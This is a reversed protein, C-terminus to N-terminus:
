SANAESKSEEIKEISALKKYAEITEKAKKPTDGKSIVLYPLNHAQSKKYTRLIDQEETKKKNFAGLLYDKGEISVLAFLQKKDVSEIEKILIHKKSCFEQIENLFQEKDNLKKQKKPKIEKKETKTEKQELKEKIKELEKQKELLEQKILELEENKQEPKPTKMLELEKQNPSTLIPNLQPKAKEEIKEEKIEHMKSLEEKIRVVAQEENLTFYRWFLIDRFKFPYAFDKLGRLAVRIVPTQLSDQIIQKDKLLDQAEREKSNLFKIFNELMQKKSATFYLPSNGVKMDSIFITKESNMESLFAGIFLSNMNMYRSIQVPLSPGRTELFDFIKRKVEKGDLQQVM